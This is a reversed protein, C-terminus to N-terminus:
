LPDGSEEGGWLPCLLFPGSHNSYFHMYVALAYHMLLLRIYIFHFALSLVSLHVM